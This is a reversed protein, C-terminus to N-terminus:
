TATPWSTSTPMSTPSCGGFSMARARSASPASSRAPRPAGRGHPGPQQQRLRLDDRRCRPASAPSRRPSRRKRMTAPCSSRSARSYGVGHGRTGRLPAWCYVRVPNRKRRSVIIEEAAGEQGAGEQSPGEAGRGQRSPEEAKAEAKADQGAEGGKKAAPKKAAAKKPKEDHHDHGCGPGHVHGEESELDAELEARTSRATASKRRPSCSTSSRTRM